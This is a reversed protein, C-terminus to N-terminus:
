MLNLIWFLVADYLIPYKGDKAIINSLFVEIAQSPLQYFQPHLPKIEHTKFVWYGGHDLLKVLYIGFELNIKKISGRVWKDDWFAAVFDNV